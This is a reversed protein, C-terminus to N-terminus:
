VQRQGGSLLGGREGVLTDYGQPLSIIFDHANAAKAAKIIDDKSVHENPLGYAINEAVSLSFLVPEQNVISVVKAWESKDFMRVDEGGVTIRGQTPEYFRALLQVITSKGAGSSGVLATVTGSNLTLSLGDLVKVDPRLPYAFHVDDLCVDGAWTLTRLNNTSKLNSMYYKDLHRINVNPGASLFLKLNEDQVKKTHIDRELGYALAEDIDVANLISNIRDIAAFTGRLDGFTNVLGQVAFTLTFTYGIFSVVTGVALEGQTPSIKLILVL